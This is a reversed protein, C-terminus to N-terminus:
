AFRRVAAGRGGGPGPIPLLYELVACTGSVHLSLTTPIRPLVVRDDTSQPVYRHSNNCPPTHHADTLRRSPATLQARYYMRPLSPRTSASVSAFFCSCITSYRVAVHQCRMPYNACPEHSVDGTLFGCCRGYRQAPRILAGMCARKQTGIHTKPGEAPGKCPRGPWGRYM